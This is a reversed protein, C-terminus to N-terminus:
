PDPLMKLEPFFEIEPLWHRSQLYFDELPLSVRLAEGRPRERILRSLESDNEILEVGGVRAAKLCLLDHLVVQTGNKDDDVVFATVSARESGPLPWGPDSAIEVALSYRAFRQVNDPGSFNEVLDLDKKTPIRRRSLGPLGIWTIATRPYDRFIQQEALRDGLFHELGFLGAFADDVDEPTPFYGTHLVRNRLWVVKRFYTGVPGNGNPTWDGRLRAPFEKTVRTQHRISRDFASACTAPDVREEWFLATLVTDLLVEGAVGVTAVSLRRNGFFDRQVTAERRLDLYSSFMSGDLLESFRHTEEESLANWAFGVLGPSADKVLMPTPPEKSVIGHDDVVAIWHLVIPPLTQRALLQVPRKRTAAYARQVENVFDIARDLAEDTSIPGSPTELAVVVEAVSKVTKLEALALKRTRRLFTHRRLTSKLELSTKRLWDRATWAPPEALLTPDQRWIRDVYKSIDLPDSVLNSSRLPVEHLVMSMAM